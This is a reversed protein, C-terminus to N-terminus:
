AYAAPVTEYCSFCFCFLCLLFVVFLQCNISIFFLLFWFSPFVDDIINQSCPSTTSPQGSHACRQEEISRANQPSDVCKSCSCGPFRHQTCCLTADCDHFEVDSRPSRQQFNWFQCLQMSRSSGFADAVCHEVFAQFKMRTTGSIAQSMKAEVEGRRRKM